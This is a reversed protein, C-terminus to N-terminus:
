FKLRPDLLDRLGDGFFNFGMVTIFIALGPYTAVHPAIRLFERGRSLMAGWEPTPAQAGLGVFSLGAAALIASGMQMSAVVLAPAVVNPVVHRLAVRDMRAGLARAAEVYETERVSLVSGRVLRAYTPVSSIGVALMVNFMGPGLAAVIAIALLIGPVALMVDMVRMVVSDLWGGYLGALLGAAGGVVAGIGVAVVGVVLSIRAGYLLRSWMCRGFEDTGLPYAPARGRLALELEQDTPDHPALVPALLALIVVTLLILGGVIIRPHKRLVRWAHRVSM